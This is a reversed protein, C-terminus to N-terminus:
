CENIKTRFDTHEYPKGTKDDTAHLVVTTPWSSDTSPQHKQAYYCACHTLVAQLVSHARCVTVTSQLWQQLRLLRTPSAATWAALEAPKLDPSLSAGVVHPGPKWDEKSPVVNYRSLKSNSQALKLAEQVSADEGFLKLLLTAEVSSEESDKAVVAARGIMALWM